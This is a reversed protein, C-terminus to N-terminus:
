IIITTLEGQLLLPSNSSLYNNKEYRSVRKLRGNITPKKKGEIATSLTLGCWPILRWNRSVGYTKKTINFSKLAILM